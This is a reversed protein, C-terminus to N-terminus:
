IAGFRFNLIRNRREGVLNHSVTIGDDGTFLLVRVTWARTDGTLFFRALKDALLVVLLWLM